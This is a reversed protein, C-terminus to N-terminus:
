LSVELNQQLRSALQIKDSREQCIQVGAHMAVGCGAIEREIWGGQSLIGGSTAIWTIQFGKAFYLRVVKVHNGTATPAGGAVSATTTSVGRASKTAAKSDM